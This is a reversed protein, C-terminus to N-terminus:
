QYIRLILDFLPARFVTFHFHTFGARPQLEYNIERDKGQLIMSWLIVSLFERRSIILFAAAIAKAEVVSDDSVLRNIAWSCTM